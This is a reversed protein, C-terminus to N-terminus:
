KHMSIKLDLMQLNNKAPSLSLAGTNIKYKYPVIFTTNGKQYTILANLSFSTREKQLSYIHSGTYTFGNKLLAGTMRIPVFDSKLKTNGKKGKDDGGKSGFALSVIIVFSVFFLAPKMLKKMQITTM